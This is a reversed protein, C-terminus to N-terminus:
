AGSMSESVVGAETLVELISSDIEAFESQNSKLNLLANFVPEEVRDYKISRGNTTLVLRRLEKSEPTYTLDFRHLDSVDYSVAALEHSSLLVDQSQEGTTTKVKLHRDEREYIVGLEAAELELSNKTIQQLHSQQEFWKIFQSRQQSRRIDPHIETLDQFEDALTEVMRWISRQDETVYRYLTMPFANFLTFTIHM